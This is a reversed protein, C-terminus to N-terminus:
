EIETMTIITRENDDSHSDVRFRSNPGFLIEGEQDGWGSLKQVDKGHRSQILFTVSNEGYDGSGLM